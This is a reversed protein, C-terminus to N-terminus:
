ALKQVVRMTNCGSTGPGMCSEDGLVLSEETLVDNHWVNHGFDYRLLVRPVDLRAPLGHM